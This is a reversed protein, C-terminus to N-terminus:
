LRALSKSVDNASSRSVRIARKVVRSSQEGELGKVVEMVDYNTHTPLANKRAYLGLSAGRPVRLAFNVYGPEAQYFQVNWYGYAPIAQELPQSLAIQSFSTADPPVNKAM